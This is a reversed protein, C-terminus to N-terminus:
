LLCNQSTGEHMILRLIETQKVKTCVTKVSNVHNDQLKRAVVCPSSNSVNLAPYAYTMVADLSVARKSLYLIDQEVHRVCALMM